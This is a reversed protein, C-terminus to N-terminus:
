RLPHADRAIRRFLPCRVIVIDGVRRNKAPLIFVRTFHAYLELESGQSVGTLLLNGPRGRDVPVGDSESDTPPEKTILPEVDIDEGRPLEPSVVGFGSASGPPCARCVVEMTPSRANYQATWAVDPSSEYEPETRGYTRVDDTDMPEPTPAGTGEHELEADSVTRLIKHGCQRCQKPNQTHIRGCHKCRWNM